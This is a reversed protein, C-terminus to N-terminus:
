NIEGQDPMQDAVDVPNEDTKQASETKRSVIVKAPRIVRGNMKYGKALVKVISDDKEGEAVGRGQEPDVVEVAEHLNPDFQKGEAEVQEVGESQLMDNFQKIVMALGQDNLHSQASELNDLVPL